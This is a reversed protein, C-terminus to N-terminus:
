LPLHHTLEKCSVQTNGSFLSLYEPDVARIREAVEKASILQPADRRAFIVNVHNEGFFDDPFFAAKLVQKGVGGAIRNVVVGGGSVLGHTNKPIDRPKGGIDDRLVVQGDATIDKSYILPATSSATAFLGANENESKDRYKNWVIAGTRSEYGLDWLSMKSDWLSNLRAAKASFLTLTALSQKNQSVFVYESAQETVPAKEKDTKRRLVLVQVATQADSFMRADDVVTLSVIEAEELIFKRLGAFFAGSNMSPPIILGVYGGKKVTLISEYIFLSFINARGSTLHAYRKKQESTLKLEFYPPNALIVDWSEDVIEGQARAALFDKQESSVLPSTYTLIDADIDYGHYTASPCREQANVLLEGTGVAPDLVKDGKQIEISEFLLSSIERPTMYQGLSKRKGLDANKAFDLSHSLLTPM